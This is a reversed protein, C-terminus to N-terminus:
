KCLVNAGPFALPRNSDPKFLFQFAQGDQLNKGWLSYLRQRREVMARELNKVYADEEMSCNQYNRELEAADFDGIESFRLALASLKAQFQVAVDSEMWNSASDISTSLQARLREFIISTANREADLNRENVKYIYNVLDPFLDITREACFDERNRTVPEFVVNSYVDQAYIALLANFVRKHGLTNLEQFAKVFYKFLYVEVSAGPNQVLTKFFVSWEIEPFNNTLDSLTM